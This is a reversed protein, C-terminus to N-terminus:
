RGYWAVLKALEGRKRLTEIAWANRGSGLLPNYAFHDDVQELAVRSAELRSMGSQALVRALWKAVPYTLVLSELGPWLAKRFNSAGAFQMSEIKLRYYRTFLAEIEAEPVGWPEEAVAFTASPIRGHLRPVRGVGRAFKWASVVRRMRSRGDPGADRGQDRRAYLAAAQRFLVRGLWGPPPLETANTPVDEAVAGAIVSLFETLRKGSVAEFRSQRCIEAIALVKRLRADVPLSEDAVADTLCKTFRLLDPWNSAQNPRLEPVPAQAPTGEGAELEAALDALEAAFDHIPRGKNATVSPCGMRLSVRWHDGAPVLIFPYLRCALPKGSAGFKAHVRCKNDDGLFVCAGGPTQALRYAGPEGATAAVPWDQGDLKQKEADTVPVTYGRCCNGCSHCDWQVMPLSRVPTPM